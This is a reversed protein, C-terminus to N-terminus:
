KKIIYDSFDFDVKNEKNKYKQEYALARKLVSVSSPKKPLLRGKKDRKEHKYVIIPTDSALLEIQASTFTNYYDYMPIQVLGLLFSRTSM